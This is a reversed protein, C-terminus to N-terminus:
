KGERNKAVPLVKLIDYPGKYKYINVYSVNKSYRTMNQNSWKCTSKVQAFIIISVHWANNNICAKVQWSSSRDM